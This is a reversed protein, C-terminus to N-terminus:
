KNHQEQEAMAKRTTVIIQLKTKDYWDDKAHRGVESFPDGGAAKWLM